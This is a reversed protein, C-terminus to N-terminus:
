REILMGFLPGIAAIIFLAAMNPIFSYFLCIFAFVIVISGHIVMERLVSFELRKTTKNAKEYYASNYPVDVFKSVVRWVSELSIVHAFSTALSRFVWLVCQTVSGIDLLKKRYGRDCMKGVIWITLFGILVSFAVIGGLTAASGVVTFIFIPWVTDNIQSNYAVLSAAVKKDFGDVKFSFKFPMKMDKSALLPVVASILFALGVVFLTGFGFFFVILGGVFPAIISIISPFMDLLAVEEGRKKGDTLTSFFTHFPIWFLAQAVGYVAAAMYILHREGGVTALMIYYFSYFVFGFLMGHKFGIKSSIKASLPCLLAQTSSVIIFFLLISPIDYGITYLYVPIFISILSMAMTRLSMMAYIESLEKNRLIRWLLLHHADM